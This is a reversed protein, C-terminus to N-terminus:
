ITLALPALERQNVRMIKDGAVSFVHGYKKTMFLGGVFKAVDDPSCPSTPNMESMASPWIVNVYIGHDKLEKAITEGYARVGAKCMAYVSHGATCQQEAGSGFLLIHGGGEDKMFSASINTIFVASMQNVWIQQRVRDGRIDEWEDRLSLGVCHAVMDLRKEQDMVAGILSYMEQPEELNARIATVNDHESVWDEKIDVAVVRAGLEALLKTISGGIAGAAGTVLAVKNEFPNSM